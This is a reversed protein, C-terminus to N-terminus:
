RLLRTTLQDPPQPTALHYGQAYSCGLDQLTTLSAADEVGEAIVTKHLNHALTLVAAVVAASQHDQSLNRLFSRDIKLITAPLQVLRSLSSFGTGFDDIALHCGLQQLADLTAFAHTGDLLETETIELVLRHPAVGTAHATAALHHRLRPQSLEAGSLNLFMRQPARSGLQSDWAALQRCAQTIVWPGIDLLLGTRAAVDIFEAASRLRGDPHQWRLLAEVAFTAGTTLDIIPQYHLRLQQESLAARLDTEVQRRATLARHAAEDFVQYRGPGRRKAEYMAADARSLLEDATLPSGVAKEALPSAPDPAPGCGLPADLCLSASGATAIGISATPRVPVGSPQACPTTLSDLLRQTVLEAEGPGTSEHLEDLLVVFEDGGIRAVTDTPRVGARLRQAFCRILEDGAAHGYADNVTKLGDLDLFLVAVCGSHRQLRALAHALQELLVPRVLLGTLPDHLARVALEDRALQLRRNLEHLEQARALLDVEAEVIRRHLGSESLAANESRQNVFDTVDVVRHLLLVVQGQEDLVPVNVPSWHREVFSGDGVPIDYRQRAMTDPLGSVVARVLSAHLQRVGDGDPHDPNAPFADFVQRGVLEERHRSTAALYAANVDVISLDPTLLLYPTPAAAFM